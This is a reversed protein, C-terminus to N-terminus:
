ECSVEGGGEHPADGSLVWAHALPDESHGGRADYREAAQGRATLRVAGAPAGRGAALLGVDTDDQRVALRRGPPLGRVPREQLLRELVGADLVVDLVRLTVLAGELGDGVLQQGLADVDQDDDVQVAAAAAGDQVVGALLADRGGVVVPEHQAAAGVVVDREVVHRDALELAFAQDLAQGVHLRGLGLHGLEVARRGVVVRRQERLAVVRYEVRLVRVAREDLARVRRYRVPVVGLGARDELLHQGRVLVDLACEDGVVAHGVRDDRDQLLVVEVPLYRHGPLVGGDLAQLVDEVTVLAHGHVLGHLLFRIRGRLQRHGQGLAGVRRGALRHGVGGAALWDLSGELRGFRDVLVGDLLNHVVAKHGLSIQARPRVGGLACRGADASRRAEQGPTAVTRRRSVADCSRAAVRHAFSSPAVGTVAGRRSSRPILLLKPGTWTRRSTSRVAWAPSTVARTPSLPAPLDVRTLHTPPM